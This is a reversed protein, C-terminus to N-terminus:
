SRLELRTIFRFSKYKRNHGQRLNCIKYDQAGASKDAQAEPPNQAFVFFHRLSFKAIKKRKELEKKKLTKPTANRPLM